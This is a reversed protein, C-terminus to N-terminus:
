LDKARYMVNTSEVKSVVDLFEGSTFTTPSHDMMVNAANDYENYADYSFCVSEGLHYTTCAQCVKRIDLRGHWLRCFNLVSAERFTMMLIVTEPFMAEHARPANLGALLVDVIEEFHGREEYDEM